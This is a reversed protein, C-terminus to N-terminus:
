NKSRGRTGGGQRPINNKLPKNVNGSTNATRQKSKPKRRTVDDVYLFADFAADQQTDSPKSKPKNRNSTSKGKSRPSKAYEGQVGNVQIFQEKVKNPKTKTKAQRNSTNPRKPQGFANASFVLVVAIISIFFLNRKLM